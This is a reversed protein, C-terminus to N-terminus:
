LDLPSLDTPTDGDGTGREESNPFDIDNALIAAKLYNNEKKLSKILEFAQHTIKEYGEIIVRLETIKNNLDIITQKDNIREKRLAM